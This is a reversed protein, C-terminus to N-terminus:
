VFGYDTQCLNAEGSKGRKGVFLNNKGELCPLGRLFVLAHIYLCVRRRLEVFHQNQEDPAMTFTSWQSCYAVTCDRSITMTPLLCIKCHSRIVLILM